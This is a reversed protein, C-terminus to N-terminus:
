AIDRILKEMIKGPVTTESIPRYNCAESKSGSQFIATVNAKKWISPLKHEELSKRYIIELPYCLHDKLSKLLHPFLKVAGQSKSKKLQGLLKKINESSMNIISLEEAYQQEPFFSLDGDGEKEFVSAFFM